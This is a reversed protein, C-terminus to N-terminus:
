VPTKFRREYLANACASAFARMAGASAVAAIEHAEVTHFGQKTAAEFARRDFEGALYEAFRTVHPGARRSLDGVREQASKGM